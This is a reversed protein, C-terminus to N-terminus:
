EKDMDVIGNQAYLWKERQKKNMRGSVPMPLVM